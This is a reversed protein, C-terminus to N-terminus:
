YLFQKKAVSRLIDICKGSESDRSYKYKMVSGFFLEIVSRYSEACLAEIVAGIEEPNACTVPITVYDSSNHILNVYEDQGESLMPCPIIGYDDTMDRLNASIATELRAIYFFTQNTTFLSSDATSELYKAGRTQHLLQNLTELVYVARDTDYAVTITGDDGRVYRQLNTSYDLHKVYEANDVILGYLDGTNVEGDGNLDNYVTEIIELMNDYTWERAIVTKYMEDADGYNDAYLRKNFYVAGSKLYNNLCLDGVLYKIQKGDISLEKM